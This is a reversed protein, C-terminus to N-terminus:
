ELIDFYAVKNPFSFYNCTNKLFREPVVKKASPYLQALAARKMRADPFSDLCSRRQFGGLIVLRGRGGGDARPRGWANRAAGPRGRGGGPM